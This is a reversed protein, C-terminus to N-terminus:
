AGHLGRSASSSSRSGWTALSGLPEQGLRRSVDGLSATQAPQASFSFDCEQRTGAAPGLPTRRLVGLPSPPLHLAVAQSPVAQSLDHQNESAM